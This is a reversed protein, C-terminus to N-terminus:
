LGNGPCLAEAGVSSAPQRQRQYEICGELYSIVSERSARPGPPDRRPDEAFQPIEELGTLIESVRYATSDSNLGETLTTNKAVGLKLDVRLSRLARGLELTMRRSLSVAIAGLCSIAQSTNATALESAWKKQLWPSHVAQYEAQEPRWDDPADRAWGGGSLVWHLSWLALMEQDKATRHLYDLLVNRTEAGTTSAAALVADRLWASTPVGWAAQM